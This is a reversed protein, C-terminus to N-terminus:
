NAGDKKVCGKYNKTIHYNMENNNIEIKLTKSEEVGSDENEKAREVISEYFKSEEELDFVDTIYQLVNNYAEITGNYYGQAYEPTGEYSIPKGKKDVHEGDKRRQQANINIADIVMDATQQIDISHQLGDLIMKLSTTDFMILLEKEDFDKVMDICKEIMEKRRM